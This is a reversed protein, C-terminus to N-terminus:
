APFVTRDRLLVALARDRVGCYEACGRGDRRYRLRRGGYARWDLPVSRLVHRRAARSASNVLGAHARLVATVAMGDFDRGVAASETFSLAATGARSDHIGSCLFWT